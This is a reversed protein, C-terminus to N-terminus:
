QPHLESGPQVKFGAIGVTAQVVTVHLVIRIVYRICLTGVVVGLVVFSSIIPFLLGNVVHQSEIFIEVLVTQIYHDTRRDSGGFVGVIAYTYGTLRGFVVNIGVAVQGGLVLCGTEEVRTKICHICTDSSREVTVAFFVFIVAGREESAHVIVVVVTVEDLGGHAVVTRGFETHVVAPTTERRYSYAPSDTFFGEIRFIEEDIAQLETGAPSAEAVLVSQSIIVELGQNQRAVITVAAVYM